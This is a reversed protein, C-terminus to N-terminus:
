SSATSYARPTVEEKASLPELMIPRMACGTFAAIWGTYTRSRYGGWPHRTTM